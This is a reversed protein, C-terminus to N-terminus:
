RGKSPYVPSLNNKSFYEKMDIGGEIALDAWRAENQAKPFVFKLNNQM